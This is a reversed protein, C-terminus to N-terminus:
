IDLGKRKLEMSNFPKELSSKNVKIMPYTLKFGSKIAAM